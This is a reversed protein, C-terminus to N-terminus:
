MTNTMQLRIVLIAPIQPIQTIERLYKENKKLISNSNM